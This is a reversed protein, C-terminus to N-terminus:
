GEWYEANLADCQARQREIRDNDLRDRIVAIIYRERSVNNQLKRLINLLESRRKNTM